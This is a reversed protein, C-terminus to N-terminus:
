AATSAEFREKLLRIYEELPHDYIEVDRRRWSELEVDDADVRIAWWDFNGGLREVHLRQILARLNWDRLSYGLFLLSNRRLRELIKVPILSDLDTRTLYDIYHDETIVYSDNISQERDVFGHIKLVVTRKDPDIDVANPPDKILKLTAGPARHFFHGEHKGEAMYVVLDFDVGAKDLAKEMLDDFNTTLIVPPKRVPGPLTALFDHVPTLSFDTDFLEHLTEYLPGSGGRMAYIFQSVRLLDDPDAGTYDFAEALRAALEQSSPPYTDACSEPDARQKHGCLSAGAGLVPTVWGMKLGRVVNGWHEEPAPRETKTPTAAM